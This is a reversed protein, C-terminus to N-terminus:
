TAASQGGPFSGVISVAYSAPHSMCGTQLNKLLSMDREWNLVSFHKGPKSTLLGAVLSVKSDLSYWYVTKM